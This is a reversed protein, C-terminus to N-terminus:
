PVSSFFSNLEEAMEKDDTVLKGSANKLPGIGTHSKTKSRIYNAFKKANTDGSNALKKEM